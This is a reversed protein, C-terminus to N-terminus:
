RVRPPPALHTVLGTVAITVEAVNLGTLETVRSRV